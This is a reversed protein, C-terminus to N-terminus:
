LHLTESYARAPAVPTGTPAAAPVDTAREASREASADERGSYLTMILRSAANFAKARQIRDTLLDLQEGLEQALPSLAPTQKGPATQAMFGEVTPFPLFLSQGAGENDNWSGKGTALWVSNVGLVRALQATHSSGLAVREAESLTCQAMGVLQALRVQTLKARKRSQVLRNGFDSRPTKSM